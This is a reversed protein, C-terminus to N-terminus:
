AAFLEQLVNQLARQETASLRGLKKRLRGKDVSRLHDCAVSSPRDDVSTITVRWPWDVITHTLPAILVTYVTDNMADPSLIVAPRIKRMEHGRTPELEVWYVDFRKIKGPSITSDM